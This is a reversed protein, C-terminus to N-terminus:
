AHVAQARALQAEFDAIMPALRDMDAQAANRAREANGYAFRLYGLERTLRQVLKEHADQYTAPVIKGRAGM